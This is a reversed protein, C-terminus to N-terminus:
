SFMHANAATIERERTPRPPAEGEADPHFRQYDRESGRTEVGELLHDTEDQARADDADQFRKLRPLTIRPRGNSTALGNLQDWQGQLEAVSMHDWDLEAQPDLGGKLVPDLAIVRRLNNILHARAQQVRLVKPREVSLWRKTEDASLPHFGIDLYMDLNNPDGQLQVIDGDPRAYWKLAFNFTQGKRQYDKPMPHTAARLEKQFDTLEEPDAIRAHPKEPPEAEVFGATRQELRALRELLMRNQRALDAVDVVDTEPLDSVRLSKAAPRSRLAPKARAPPRRVPRATTATEVPAAEDLETDTM